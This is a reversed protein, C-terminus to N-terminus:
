HNKSLSVKGRECSHVTNQRNTRVMRDTQSWCAVSKSVKAATQGRSNAKNQTCMEAICRHSDFGDESGRQEDALNLTQGNTSIQSREWRSIATAQERQKM